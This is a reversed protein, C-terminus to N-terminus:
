YDGTKHEGRLIVNYCRDIIKQYVSKTVYFLEDVTRVVYRPKSYRESYYKKDYRYRGIEECVSKINAIPLYHTGDEDELLLADLKEM